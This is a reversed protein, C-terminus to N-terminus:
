YKISNMISEISLPYRWTEGYIGIIQAHKSVGLSYRCYKVHCQEIPDRKLCLLDNIGNKLFTKGWIDSGYLLIPKIIHDFLHMCTNFSPSSNNLLSKLKLFAKGARQGLDNKAMNFKGNCTWLMRLYKYSDKCEIINKNYLINLPICKGDNNFTVVKTKNTNVELDWEKCYWELKSTSSQLGKESTSLIVM